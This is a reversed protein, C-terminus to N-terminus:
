VTKGDWENKFVIRWGIYSFLGYVTLIIFSIGIQLGLFNSMSGSFQYFLVNDIIFFGFVSFIHAINIKYKLDDYEMGRNFYAVVLLTLLVPLLFLSLFLGAFFYFPLETIDGEFLTLVIASSVCAILITLTYDHLIKKLM